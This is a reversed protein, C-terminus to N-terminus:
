IKIRLLVDSVSSCEWVGDDGTVIKLEVIVMALMLM